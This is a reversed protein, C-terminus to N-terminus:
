AVTRNSQHFCGPHPDGSPPCPQELFVTWFLRPMFAWIASLATVAGLPRGPREQLLQWLKWWKISHARKFCPHSLRWCATLLFRLCLSSPKRLLWWGSCGLSCIFVFTKLAAIWIQVVTLSVAHPSVATGGPAKSCVITKVISVLPASFTSLYYFSYYM